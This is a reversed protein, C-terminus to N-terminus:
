IQSTDDNWCFYFLYKGIPFIPDLDFYDYTHLTFSKSFLNYNIVLNPASFGYMSLRSIHSLDYKKRIFWFVFM